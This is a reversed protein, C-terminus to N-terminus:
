RQIDRLRNVKINIKKIISRSVLNSLATNVVGGFYYTGGLIFSVILPMSYHLLFLVGHLIMFFICATILPIFIPMSLLMFMIEFLLIKVERKPGVTSPATDINKIKDKDIASQKIKNIRGSIFRKLDM